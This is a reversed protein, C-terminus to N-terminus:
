FGLPFRASTGRLFPFLQTVHQDIWLDVDAIATRPVYVIDQPALELPTDAGGTITEQLNLSRSIFQDGAGASRILVVNEVHATDLLGGAEAVAQLPTLNQRYAVPGPRGVEGTVFVSREAFNTVTVRAEPDRLFESTRTELLDEFGTTTLGFAQIEGIEPMTIWGDPRITEEHDMDSHFPFVIRVTDGPQLRYNADLYNGSSRFSTAEEATLRPVTVKSACGSLAILLAGAAAARLPVPNSRM